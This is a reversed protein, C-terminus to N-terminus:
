ALHKKFSEVMPVQEDEAGTAQAIAIAMWDAILLSRFVKSWTDIDSLDVREVAVGKDEYLGVLVSMRRQIRPHDEDDSLLVVHFRGARDQAGHGTDFGTMENHNLEPFVNYFAPIKGTENLKIKWNYAIASNARSAYVIPTRGELQAALETGTEELSAPDCASGAERIRALDDEVGLLTAMAILSFGLASRPQIGTQPIQIYPLGDKKALELLTGGTAMVACPLGRRRAENYADITEETNGSYSSAIVFVDQTISTPLGYDEHVLIEKESTGYAALLDAALHSGGMGAVVIRMYSEPLRDANEIVPIFRFQEPFRLVADKMM